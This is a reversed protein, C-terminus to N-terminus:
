HERTAAWVGGGCLIAGFLILVLRWDYLGLGVALMLTGLVAAIDALSVRKL